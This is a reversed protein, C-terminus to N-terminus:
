RIKFPADTALIISNRTNQIENIIEVDDPRVSIKLYLRDIANIFDFLLNKINYSKGFTESIYQRMIDHTLVKESTIEAMLVYDFPHKNEKMQLKKYILSFVYPHFTYEGLASYRCKTINFVSSNLERCSAPMIPNSQFECLIFREDEQYFENKATCVLSIENETVYDSISREIEPNGTFDLNLSLIYLRDEAFRNTDFSVDDSLVYLKGDLKYIGSTVTLIGKDAKIDMGSIIGDSYDCMLRETIEIPFSYMTELMKQTIANGRKFSIDYRKLM